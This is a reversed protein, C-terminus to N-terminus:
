CRVIGDDSRGLATGHGHFGRGPSPVPIPGNENIPEYLQDLQNRSLATCCACCCCFLMLLWLPNLLVSLPGGLGWTGSSSAASLLMVVVRPDNALADPVKKRFTAAWADNWQGWGKSVTVLRKGSGQDNIDVETGFNRSMTSIAVIDGENNQITYQSVASSTGALQESVTAIPKHECNEVYINTITTIADQHSSSILAGDTGRWSQESVFSFAESKIYGLPFIDKSGNKYEHVGQVELTNVWAWFIQKVLFASRKEITPCNDTEESDLNDSDESDTDDGDGAEASTATTVNGQDTSNDLSASTNDQQLKQLVLPATRKSSAFVAQEGLFIKPSSKEPEQYTYIAGVCLLLGCVVVAYSFRSKRIM